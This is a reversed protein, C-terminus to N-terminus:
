QSDEEQGAWVPIVQDPQWNTTSVVQWRHIQYDQGQLSVEVQLVQGNPMECCYSCRDGERSVGTPTEGARLKALIEEAKCDALYYGEVAKRSNDSLRGDSQVTSITLVAFISLCLCAFVTLLSSLGLGSPIKMKM